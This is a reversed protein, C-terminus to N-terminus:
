KLRQSANPIRAEIRKIDNDFEMGGNDGMSARWTPPIRGRGLFRAITPYIVLESLKM